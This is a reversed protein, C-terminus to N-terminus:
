PDSDRRPAAARLRGRVASSAARLCSRNVPTSPGENWRFAPWSRFRKVSLSRRFRGFRRPMSCLLPPLCRRGSRTAENPRSSSTPSSAHKTMPTRSSQCQAGVPGAALLAGFLGPLLAATRCIRTTMRRQDPEVSVHYCATQRRSWRLATSVTINRLTRQSPQHRGCVSAHTVHEVGTRAASTAAAPSSRRWRILDDFRPQAPPHGLRCMSAPSYSVTM